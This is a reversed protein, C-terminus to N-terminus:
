ARMMKNKRSIKLKIREERELKNLQFNLYNMKFKILHWLNGQLYQKLLERCITMCQVKQIM